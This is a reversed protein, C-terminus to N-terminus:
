LVEKLMNVFEEDSIEQSFEIIEDTEAYTYFANEVDIAEEYKTNTENQIIYYGKDSYIRNLVVGDERTLYYETKIM